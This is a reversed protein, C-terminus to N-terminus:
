PGAPLAPAAGGQESVTVVGVRKPAPLVRVCRMRAGCHPCAFPKPAPVEVKAAPPVIFGHALEVRAKVEEIPTRSSPSLFGFHRVKMFGAPLVHQLFRRLFETPTVTMTRPRASDPRTYRFRVTDQDFGVMRADSIAVKFVYRALYAIAHQAAGVPQCHVVWDVKWVEPPCRDLLGAREIEARLRLRFLRSLLRVPLFFAESSPHWRGDESDLAGGPVVYHVHPHYQLTHGWTHLVGFFGCRNGLKYRPRAAARRIAWASAAFLADYGPKPHARLFARVAEPVTFTLLFHHTPLARELQRALWHLQKAGQHAHGDATIPLPRKRTLSSSTPLTLVM